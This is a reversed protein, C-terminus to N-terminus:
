AGPALQREDAAIAVNFEIIEDDVMGAQRMTDQSLLENLEESSNVNFLTVGGVRPNRPGSVLVLGAAAQERLFARHAEVRPDDVEFEVRYSTLVLFL